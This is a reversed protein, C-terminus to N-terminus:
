EDEELLAKSIKIIESIAKQKSQELERKINIELGPIISYRIWIDRYSVAPESEEAQLLEGIAALTLGRDQFSKIQRLKQLHSDYYFGGRGRGAPPELLGEQIYYRITRRSFGTLESLEEISYQKKSM